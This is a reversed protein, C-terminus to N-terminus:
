RVDARSRGSFIDRITPRSVNFQIAIAAQTKRGELSKIKVVQADTLKGRRGAPNRAQTGHVRCDLNNESITKWSLHLPHACGGSGNGCSHAAEHHPTPAPGSTMECMYRHVYLIDGEFGFQSYGTEKNRSMPWILCGNGAYGVHDRIWKIGRGRGRMSM